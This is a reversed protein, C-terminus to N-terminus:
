KTLDITVACDELVEESGPIMSGDADWQVRVPILKMTPSSADFGRIELDQSFTIIGDAGQEPDSCGNSRLWEDNTLRRGSADELIYDGWRLYEMTGEEYVEWEMHLNIVSPSVTVQYSVIQGFDLGTVVGSGQAATGLKDSKVTFSYDTRSDPATYVEVKVNIVDTDAKQLEPDVVTVKCEYIGSDEGTEATYELRSDIGNIYVHDALEFYDNKPKAWFMLTAGDYYADTVQFLPEQQVSGDGSETETHAISEMIIVSDTEDSHVISQEAKGANIGLGHLWNQFVPLRAAAVTSGVLVLCAVLPPLIKRKKIQITKMQGTKKQVNKMRDTKMRDTNIRGANKDPKMQACVERSVVQRFREPTEPFSRDLRAAFDEYNARM